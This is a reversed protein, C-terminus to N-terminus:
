FKRNRRFIMGLYRTLYLSRVQVFIAGFILGLKRVLETRDHRQPADQQKVHGKQTWVGSTQLLCKGGFGSNKYPRTCVRRGKRVEVTVVLHASKTCVQTGNSSPLRMKGKTSFVDRQKVGYLSASGGFWFRLGVGFSVLVAPVIRTRMVYGSVVVVSVVM